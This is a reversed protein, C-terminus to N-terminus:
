LPGLRRVDGEALDALPALVFRRQWMRPHPVVLDPERVTLEGVLLVDVDLTRPGSPETRARGAAQELQRGLDLLQRPSLDTELAVVVNLYPGQGSPGGVPETEYVPSVAVVDPLAAVAARLHGRRDGLNSGLGLYARM